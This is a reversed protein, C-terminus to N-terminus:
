QLTTIVSRARLDALYDVAQATMRANLLQTGIIEFDVTSEQGSKRECLMLVTANAGRVVSTTAENVDLSAIAGRVDPPLAGQPVTERILREPPLGEAVGYLDDCTDVSAKVAEAAARDPGAIYLAYDVALDSPAGAQVRELDRLRYLAVANEIEVPRSTQGPTLGAVIGRVDDPLSELAVWAQEGGRSASPAVSFRRAAAAFDADDDIQALEAARTRSAFATEPTTTPLLIESLLVRVGGETGTRALTQSIQDRSISNRAASAFRGRVHDRWAIGATVFDRFTEEGVGNQGLATVFEETTLNARGAFEALAADVAEPSTEEGAARVANMQVAENILQERALENPDGPARLLSLFRARQDLQWRTVVTDDVQVVPSFRGQAAAPAFPLVLALMALLVLRPFM